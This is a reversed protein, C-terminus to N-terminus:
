PCQPELAPHYRRHQRQGPHPWRPQVRGCQRHQRQYHDPAPRAAPCARPHAVNWLRVTGDANGSALTHGDPSFAVANVTNGPGSTLPLSPTTLPQGSTLPRGLPRPHAPDTVNWLRVTGDGNGSALTRGDPSFTVADVTNGNSGSTLLQGLPRPHAPDAVNWLRVTGDANGSALTRGAPSFAEAVVAGGPSAPPFSLPTNEMNLLRSAQDQTPQM